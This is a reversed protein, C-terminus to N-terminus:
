EYIYKGELVLADSQTRAAVVEETIYLCNRTTYEFKVVQDKDKTELIKQLEGVTM